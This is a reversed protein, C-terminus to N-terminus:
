DQTLVAPVAGSGSFSLQVTVDRPTAHVRGSAIVPWTSGGPLRLAANGATGARVASKPDDFTVFRGGWEDLAGRKRKYLRVTGAALVEGDATILDARTTVEHNNM